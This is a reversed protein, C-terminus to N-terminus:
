NFTLATFFDVEDDTFVEIGNEILLKATVGDGNIFNNTFTGDYVKGKGCSPSKSKLIAINCNNAKAIELCKKAGKIFQETVDNGQNDFVKDGQQEAPNRPITLGGMVEPCIPIFNYKEKLKAVQENFYNKAKWNCNEGLLCVSILINPKM